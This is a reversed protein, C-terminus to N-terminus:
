NVTVTVSNSLRAWTATNALCQDKGGYCIGLYLQYTGATGINIHDRWTLEQHPGLQANTWSQANPGQDSHAALVSYSVIQDTTNTVKFNFWIDQGKAAVPNEVSFSDGRIGQSIFVSPLPTAVVVTPPVPTNTPPIPTATPPPPPPAQIVPLSNTDGNYRSVLSSVWGQRGAYNIVYWQASADRGVIEATSGVFLGGIVPYNLGPGTRVNADATINLANSPPATDTPPAATPQAQTPPNQAPPQTPIVVPMLPTASVAAVPAEGTALIGEVAYILMAIGAFLLVAIVGLGIWLGVNSQTKM